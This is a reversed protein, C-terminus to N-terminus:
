FSISFNFSITKGGAAFGSAGVAFVTGSPNSTTFQISGIKWSGDYYMVPLMFNYSPVMWNGLYLTPTGTANFTGYCMFRFQHGIISYYMPGSGTSLVASLDGAYIFDGVPTARAYDYLGANARISGAAEINGGSITLGGTTINLNGRLTSAGRVDFSSAWIASELYLGTNTYLGYSNNGALYFSTQLAGGADARGPYIYGGDNHLSSRWQNVNSGISGVATFTGACTLNGARNLSLPRGLFGGADDMTDILFLQASNWVRFTKLNAPESTDKFYLAPDQLEIQQNAVFNNFRNTLAVNGTTGVVSLGGVITVDGNRNLSLVDTQLGGADNYTSFKLLQSTNAIHWRRADAPENTKNLILTPTTSEITQIDLFTNQVNRLAVNGGTGNVTLDLGIAASGDRYLSLSPLGLGLGSGNDSLAQFTLPGNVNGTIRWLKGDVESSSSYFELNPQTSQQLRFVSSGPATFTNAADRRAMNAFLVGSDKIIKGTIGNFIVVDTDVSSAPGTVDGTGGGSATSNIILQGATGTNLTINTGAVLRRSNVLTTEANATIFTELGTTNGGTNLVPQWAGGVKVKLVGNAM